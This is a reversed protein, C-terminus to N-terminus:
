LKLSEKYVEVTKKGVSDWSLEDKTKKYAIYGMRKCLKCNKLIRVIANALARSNRPPVVFGTKGDDVVEPLSGVNTTVVPKKFAYAIPIIGSQSAGIYPLVVVSARRFLKPIDKNPIYRIICEFRDKNIMLREYKSFDDCKGAIIIRLEPISESIFPEATILYELGKRENISGFFLVTGNEEKVNECNDWKKFISFEGHPVVHIEEAKAGLYSIAEAKLQKGHVIIFTNKNIFKILKYIIKSFIYKALIILNREGARPAVDHVTFIISCKKLFPLILPLIILMKGSIQFHIINPKLKKLYKIILFVTPLLGLIILITKAYGCKILKTNKNLLNGINKDLYKSVDYPLILAVELDDYKSLTNVLETTYEFFWMSIIVVNVSKRLKGTKM